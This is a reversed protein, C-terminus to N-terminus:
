WRFVRYFANGYCERLATETNQLATANPVFDLLTLPRTPDVRYDVPFPVFDVGARRFLWAARPMHWATTILIIRKFGQKRCYEAVARAEDRTNGAEGTVDIDALAVGRAVAARRMAVGETERRKEWPIRGGTFLLKGAKGMQVLRVGAEFRDVSEAWEPFYQPAREPGMIGGLVLVADAPALKAPELLPYRSELWGLLSNGVIPTSAAYLWVAAVFVPWRRRRVLAWLVLLFAIGLPLVFVPLLKNLFLM